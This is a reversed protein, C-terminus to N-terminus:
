SPSAMGAAMGMAVSASTCIINVGAALETECQNAKLERAGLHCAVLSAACAADIAFTAGNLNLTYSLRGSCVALTNQLNFVSTQNGTYFLETSWVGVVVGTNSGTFASRHGDVQHLASYGHELILRQQPDMVTAEKRSIDFALQDFLLISDLMGCCVHSPVLQERTGQFPQIADASTVVFRWLSSYTVAIVGGPACYSMGGISVTDVGSLVTDLQTEHEIANQTPALSAVLMRATPHDFILTSPVSSALHLRSVLQNRLEIAGLSDIGGEMLPTDADVVQGATQHILYLVHQWTSTCHTLMHSETAHSGPKMSTNSAMSSFLLPLSATQFCFTSWVMRFVAALSPGGLRTLVDLSALGQALGIRQIGLGQELAAMRTSVAGRAAM